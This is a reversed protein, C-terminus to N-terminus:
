AWGQERDILANAKELDPPTGIHFCTGDHVLGFLRTTQETKDFILNNSFITQTVDDYLAPCVLQVSLFTYPRPPNQGHRQLRGDETMNFDGQASFGRDERAPAVLLLQDMKQGDWAKAMRILAPENGDFWPLDGSLLFFPREGLLARVKKVAGGTELVPDEYSLFFSIDKRTELHKAIHDALHHANIIVKKIGAAKLHDLAIDLMARGAIKLLPKPQHATLPMMRKGFGAALIMATDSLAPFAPWGEATVHSDQM